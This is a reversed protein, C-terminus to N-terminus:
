FMRAAFSQKGIVRVNSGTVKFADVGPACHIRTESTMEVITDAPLEITADM